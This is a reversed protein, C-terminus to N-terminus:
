YLDRVYFGCMCIRRRLPSVNHTYFTLHLHGVTATPTPPPKGGRGRGRWPDVEWHLWSPPPCPPLDVLAWRWVVDSGFVSGFGGLYEQLNVRGRRFTRGSFAQGTLSRTRAVREVGASLCRHGWIFVILVYCMHNSVFICMADKRVAWDHYNWSVYTNLPDSSGGSISYLYVFM